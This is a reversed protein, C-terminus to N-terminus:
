QLIQRSHANGCCRNNINAETVNWYQELIQSLVFLYGKRRELTKKREEKGDGNILM